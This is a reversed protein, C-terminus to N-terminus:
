NRMTLPPSFPMTSPPSLYVKQADMNQGCFIGINTDGLEDRLYFDLSLPKFRLIM